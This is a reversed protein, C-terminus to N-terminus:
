AFPAVFSWRQRPKGEKEPNREVYRIAAVVADLSNLYVSWGKEAWCSVAQGGKRTQGHFPHLAAQYLAMSAERKLHGIIRIFETEHRRVVLHIHEPLISCAYFIYGSKAIASKFGMAIQQAQIGTFSVPPFQLAEKTRLRLTRDHPRHAVYHRTNVKTAKGGVRFLEWSGVFDSWSGRPDNPLWFGYASFILHAALIM